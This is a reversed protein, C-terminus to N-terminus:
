LRLFFRAQEPFDELDLSPDSLAQAYEELLAWSVEQGTGEAKRAVELLRGAPRDVSLGVLIKLGFEPNSQAAQRLAQYLEGWGSFYFFGVLFKLERSATSLDALRAALDKKERANTIFHM